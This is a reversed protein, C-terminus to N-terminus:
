MELKQINKKNTKPTTRKAANHDQKMFVKDEATKGLTNLKFLTKFLKNKKKIEKWPKKKRWTAQTETKRDTEGDKM